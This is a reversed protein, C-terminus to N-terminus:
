NGEHLRREVTRLRTSLFITYLVALIPVGIAWWMLGRLFTLAGTLLLATSVVDVALTFWLANVLDERERTLVAPCWAPEHEREGAARHQEHCLDACYEECPTPCDM